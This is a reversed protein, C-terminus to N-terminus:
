KKPPPPPPPAAAPSAAGGTAPAEVEVQELMPVVHGDPVEWPKWEPRPTRPTPPHTPPHAPTGSLVCRPASSAEDDVAAAARGSVCGGVGGWRGAMKPILALEERAMKIEEELQRSFMEELQEDPADGGLARLKFGVTKEVARRYEASEPVVKIAELVSQLAETLHQRAAEDVPLGVIGTTTKAGRVGGLAAVQQLELRPGLASGLARLLSGRM